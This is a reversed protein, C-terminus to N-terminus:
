LANVIEKILEPGRYIFGSYLQILSAGAAIKERAAILSDVGGVGIIPIQQKLEQALRKITQTSAAHLPRGSLGGAEEAHALNAVLTRNITTNTAVIGEIRHRLCADALQILEEHTLDPAIKILLPVFHNHQQSLQQQKQKVARLLDELIDGYQLTRLDATNPSSINIVIYGACPYVKEMCLLYDEKAYEIPTSRNKGINIGIVGTFRAKRVNAVLNDVGANNFGMRNVIAQAAPIRFLRPVANGPQPQPTVTGVEIFGFGLAGFLDIYEGDKDMGAALGLANKFTLGLCTVPKHALRNEILPLLFRNDALKLLRLTYQHAREAELKFLLARLIPYFM